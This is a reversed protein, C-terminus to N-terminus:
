PELGIKALIGPSKALRFFMESVNGGSETISIWAMAARQAWSINLPSWSDSTQLSRGATDIVLENAPAVTKPM